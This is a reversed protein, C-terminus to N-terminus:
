PWSLMEHQAAFKTLLSSCAFLLVAMQLLVILRVDARKEPANGGDSLPKM